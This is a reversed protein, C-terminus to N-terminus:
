GEQPKHRKTWCGVLMEVQKNHLDDIERQKILMTWLMAGLQEKTVGDLVIVNGSEDTRMILEGRWTFNMNPAIAESITM